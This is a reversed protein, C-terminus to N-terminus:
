PTAERLQRAVEDAARAAEPSAAFVRNEELYRPYRRLLRRGNIVELEDREGGFSVSGVHAVYARNARGVLYGAARARQCWDNEENYGRGWAPDFAGLQDLVAGRMLMCFGVATPMETFAPLKTLDLKRPDVEEAPTAHCFKPVSCLTGNNSLPSVAAIRADSEFVAALERLWGEAPVTDSNLVVVDGQHLLLGRNASAVFGLNRENELLRVEPRRARFERLMPNMEPDDGRDDIVILRALLGDNTALVAELCDRTGGVDRFVPVVVDIM